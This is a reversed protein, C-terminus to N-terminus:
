PREKRTPAESPDYGPDTPRTDYPPVLTGPMKPRGFWRDWPLALVRQEISWLVVAWRPWAPNPRRPMVSRAIYLLVLVITTVTEPHDVIWTAVANM